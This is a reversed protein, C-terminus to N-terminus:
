PPTWMWLKVIPWHDIIIKDIIVLTPPGRPPTCFDDLREQRSWGCYHSDPSSPHDVKLLHEFIALPPCWMLFTFTKCRHTSEDRFKYKSWIWPWMVFHRQTLVNGFGCRIRPNLQKALTVAKLYCWFEVEFRSWIEVYIWDWFGVFSWSEFRLLVDGEINFSINPNMNEVLCWSWLRSLVTTKVNWHMLILLALLMLFNQTLMKLPWLWM